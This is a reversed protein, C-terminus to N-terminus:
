EENVIRQGTCKEMQRILAAMDRPLPATMDLSKGAADLPKYPLSLKLAHLGLRNLLPKEDLPDGRWNRKFASLYIGKASRGYLSDCVVPYGLSCAHVRIQHTRGTEPIVELVTYNGASGLVRFHTLSKKGRYRDIITMHAKNGDPVLPLDCSAEKWSPRGYVAAIYRKHVLGEEFAQSLFRHTKSNRAFVVIGSTDKDIRHVTFIRREEGSGGAQEAYHGGLLRDLRERSEDWREASVSIGAAKNVATISDDEYIISYFPKQKM